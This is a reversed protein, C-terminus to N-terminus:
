FTAKTMLESIEADSLNPAASKLEDATLYSVGRRRSGRLDQIKRCAEAEGGTGQVFKQVLKEADRYPQDKPNDNRMSPGDPFRRERYRHQFYTALGEEFVTAWRRGWEPNLLHVAEHAVDWCLRNADAVQPVAVAVVNQAPSIIMPGYGIQCPNVKLDDCRPGFWTQAERLAEMLAQDAQAVDDNTM